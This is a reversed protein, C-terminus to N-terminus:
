KQTVIKEFREEDSGGYVVGEETLFEDIEEEAVDYQEMSTRIGQVYLEEANEGTIGAFAAEARLFYTEAANFVIIEYRPAMLVPGVSAVMEQGYPEKEEQALQIPRGRYGSISDWAPSLFIP